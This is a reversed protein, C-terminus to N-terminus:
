LANFSSMREHFIKTKGKTTCNSTVYDGQKKCKKITKKFCSFKESLYIEKLLLRFYCYFFLLYFM